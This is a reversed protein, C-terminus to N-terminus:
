WHLKKYNVIYYGNKKKTARLFSSFLQMSAMLDTGVFSLLELRELAGDSFNRVLFDCADGLKTDESQIADCLSALFDDPYISYFKGFIKEQLLYKSGEFELWTAMLDSLFYLRTYDLATLLSGKDEIDLSAIAKECSKYAHEAFFSISSIYKEEDFKQKKGFM